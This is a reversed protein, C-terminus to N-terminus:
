YIFLYFLFPLRERQSPWGNLIVAKLSQLIADKATEEHIEQIQRESVSLLNVSHIREVEQDAKGPHHEHPLYARSVTDALYMEPGRRYKIEVDYQRLRMLLRQLRKPAAALPKKVIMELPKHDTWLTVRRGHVYQHNHEMGFVKALLKKEIQSYNQEAKTLARSAYTVPQGQQMLAFGIGKESADGEGETPESPTFFKLVPATSVAKKIKVFAEQHEQSWEWPVDKHTLRRLPESMDSFDELFRSLYKVTNVFRQVAQVDEPRPM